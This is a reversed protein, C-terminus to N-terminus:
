LGRTWAYSNSINGSFRGALAQELAQGQQILQSINNMQVQQDSRVESLTRLVTNLNDMFNALQQEDLQLTFASQKVVNINETLYQYLLDLSIFDAYRNLDTYLKGQTHGLEVMLLKFVPLATSNLFGIEIENLKTDTQINSVMDNLLQSVQARLGNAQSIDAKKLEPHLCNTTEDCQYIHAEGGDLLANLLDRDAGLAPLLYKEIVEDDSGNDVIRLIVSGSLSMFFEALTTNNSLFVNKKLAKWAINTNIQIQPGWVDDEKFRDLTAPTKGETGCQYRARVHDYFLGEHSGIAECLRQSSIKSRSWLSDVSAAAAECSNLNFRNIDSAWKNLFGLKSEMMPSITALALHFAYGQANNMVNKATNILESSNIFSFGGTFLDIGGCGASFSPMQVSALQANRVQSRAFLSGGTYYGAQQGEYANAATVNAAFGLGNFFDNLDHSLNALSLTSHLCLFLILIIRTM